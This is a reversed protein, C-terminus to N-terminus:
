YGALRPSAGGGLGLMDRTFKFSDEIGWRQRYMCFIRLAEAETKVPWDTILWWSELTTDLVLVLVLWLEKHLIQDKGQSPRRVESHYTIYFSCSSIEVEVAQQKPHVQKGRKVEM